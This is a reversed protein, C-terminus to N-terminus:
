SDQVSIKYKIKIQFARSNAKIIHVKDSFPASSIEVNKSNLNLRVFRLPLTGVRNISSKVKRKTLKKPKTPTQSKNKKLTLSIKPISIDNTVRSKSTAIHLKMTGEKRIVVSNLGRIKCTLKKPNRLPLVIEYKDQLDYLCSTIDFLVKRQFVTITPCHLVDWIIVKLPEYDQFECVVFSLINDINSSLVKDRKLRMDRAYDNMLMLSIDEEDINDGLKPTFQKKLYNLDDCLHYVPNKSVICDLTKIFAYVSKEKVYPDPCLCLIECIFKLIEKNKLGTNLLLFDIVALAMDQLGERTQYNENPDFEDLYEFLYKFFPGFEEFDYLGHVYFRIMEQLISQLLLNRHSPNWSHLNILREMQSKIRNVYDLDDFKSLACNVASSLVSSVYNTDKYPNGANDNYRLIDFIFEKVFNPCKGDIDKVESLFHPIAEQILYEQFNGFYNSRPVNSGDFCFLAKFVKVLHVPGCPLNSISDKNWIFKSLARCAAIRVGYFYRSDMATRTLISSYVQSNTSSTSVVDEYYKISQLQGIVDSDRQLQSAFMYDPQNIFLKCIWEFDSDVRIWEFSENSQQSESSISTVYPDTIGWRSCEEATMLVNGLREVNSNEDYRYEILEEIGENVNVTSKSSALKRGRGRRYKVNYQIDVKTFVDKIEVIHEISTGDPEFIRITMSGTFFPTSNKEQYQLHKIASSFFGESGIASKDLLEQAQVQRIGVEIVMRKKNFRQTVRFIPVGSSYVWQQFFDELKNKNVRECVHQFHSSSLSNNALEGSMAQLFIRPLVRSMGFSRESKKMRRDLIYLVLPAKLKIFNLQGSSLSVPYANENIASGIPPNEWDHEIVDESMRNLKYKLENNGFIKNTVQLVMYGAMGICCWIDNRVLPTINILAWQSALSWALIDTTSFIDDIVDSSYLLRSNCLTLGAFDMSMDILTPLFVIAYSTYPFSGFEKSYFDMIKQTIMTSNLVTEFDLGEVPLSYIQIPIVDNIETDDIYDKNQASQNTMTENEEMQDTVVENSNVLPPLTWVNFAGISWGIHQPAVPNFIQFVITKKNLDTPHMVEKMTTFEPCVVQISRNMPNHEDEEEDIDSAENEEDESIRFEDHTEEDKVLSSDKGYENSLDNVSEFGNDETNNTKFDDLSLEAGKSPISNLSYRGEKVLSPVTKLNGIDKVRKPVTIQLEWTSKEELTNICPVWYPTMDCIESNVTYANWLQPRSLPLNDFRVGNVPNEISYDIKITIPTFVTETASVPTGRISPTIPTYNALLSADQLTIKIHSPVKIILQSKTREDPNRNLEPYKERLFRAQEISNYKHLLDEKNKLLKDKFEGGPNDHVYDCRRNEILVNTIDMDKCSFTIYELTHILPIIVIETSGKLSKNSLDVDISVRQHAVKFTDFAFPSEHNPGSLSKPTAVRSFSM